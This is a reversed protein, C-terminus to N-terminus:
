TLKVIHSQVRALDWIEPDLGLALQYEAVKLKSAHVLVPQKGNFKPIKIELIPKRPKVDSSAKEFRSTTWEEISSAPKLCEKEVSTGRKLDRVAKYGAATKPDLLAHLSELLGFLKEEFGSVERYM